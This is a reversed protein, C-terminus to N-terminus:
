GETLHLWDQPKLFYPNEIVAGDVLVKPHTSV